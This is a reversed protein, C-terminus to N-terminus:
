DGGKSHSFRKGMTGLLCASPLAKRKSERGRPLLRSRGLLERNARSDGADITTSSSANIRPIAYEPLEMGIAVKPTAGSLGRSREAGHRIRLVGNVEVVLAAVVVEEAVAVFVFRARGWTLHEAVFIQVRVGPIGVTRFRVFAVPFLLHVIVLILNNCPNLYVTM